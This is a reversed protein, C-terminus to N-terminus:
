EDGQDRGIAGVIFAKEGIVGGNVHDVLQRSDAANAQGLHETAAYGLISHTDPDPRVLQGLQIKGHRVDRRGNM